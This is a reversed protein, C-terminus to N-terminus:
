GRIIDGSVTTVKGGIERGRVDGSATTVDGNVRGHIVIDGSASKVDGVYGEVRIDGSSTVLKEVNGIVDVSIPGVLKQGDQVVGDIVVRDGSISINNGRYEVGNISVYSSSNKNGMTVQVNDVGKFLRKLLRIMEPGM